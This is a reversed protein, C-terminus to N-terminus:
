NKKIDKKTITQPYGSEYHKEDIGINVTYIKGCYANSPPLVHAFKLTSIAITYDAKVANIVSGDTSNTGSPTDISVVKANSSNIFDFIDNFPAKAEGHFGIGFICDVIIDYNEVDLKTFNIVKVGNNIAKQYYMKPEDVTPEKDCLIIDTFVNIKKLLDAIVFGDGANKGNGCFVGVRSNALSEGFIKCIKEFCATGAKLMLEAETSDSEFARTEVAKIQKATLIRM